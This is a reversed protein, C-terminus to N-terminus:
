PKGAKYPLEDMEEEKNSLSVISESNNEESLYTNYETMSNSTGSLFTNTGSM